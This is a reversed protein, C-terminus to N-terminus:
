HELVQEQEKQKKLQWLATAPLKELGKGFAELVSSLRAKDKLKDQKYYPHQLLQLM